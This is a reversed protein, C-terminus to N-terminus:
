TRGQITKENLGGVKQIEKGNQRGHTKDAKKGTQSLTWNQHSSKWPNGGERIWVCFFAAADSQKVNGFPLFSKAM